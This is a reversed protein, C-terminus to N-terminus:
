VVEMGDWGYGCVNTEIGVQVAALQCIISEACSIVTLITKIV